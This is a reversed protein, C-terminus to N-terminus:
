VIPPKLSTPSVASLRKADSERIVELPEVYTAQSFRSWYRATSRLLDPDLFSRTRVQSEYAEIVKLKQEIQDDIDMFKTPKFDATTSPAQYCYIRPVGRAAVLTASNVNRHDQHLDQSSHTYITSPSVEDIVDRIVAITIGGDSVGTDILERQFLRAKMLDAARKSELARAATDGGGEGGTLTLVAVSDGQASHRLLTGGIGIEVDDPHSGIALIVEHKRNKRRATMDTLERVKVILDTGNVPKPMVDDAGARMAKVTDEISADGALALTAILPERDKAEKILNLGSVGLLRIDVVLLDWHTTELVSMAQEASTVCEVKGVLGAMETTLAAMSDDNEVILINPPEALSSM